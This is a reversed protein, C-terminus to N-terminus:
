ECAEVEEARDLALPRRDDTDPIISGKGGHTRADVPRAHEDNQLCLSRFIRVTCSLYMAVAFGGISSIEEQIRDYAVTAISGGFDGHAFLHLPAPTLGKNPLCIRAKKSFPLIETLNPIDVYECTVDDSSAVFLSLCLLVVQIFLVSYFYSSTGGQRSHLFGFM